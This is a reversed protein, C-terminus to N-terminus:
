QIAKSAVNSLVGETGTSTYAAVAFYWTGSSLNTVQYTTLSPNSVVVVTSLPDSSTGFYVKYGALDTLATGDTNQLAPTWNLTATRPDPAIIDPAANARGSSVPDQSGGGTCAAVSLAIVTRLVGCCLRENGPRIVRCEGDESGAAVSQSADELSRWHM